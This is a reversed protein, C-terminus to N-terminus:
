QIEMAANTLKQQLKLFKAAQTATLNDGANNLSTQLKEAKELMSAYETIASVDGANAKKMLAIYKNIYDEYDKLVKDWDKSKSNSTTSTEGDESEDSSFSTANGEVASTIRFSVPKEEINISWRVIGTENAGLQIASEIDDSSYVGSLGGANANKIEVVDGNGDLMEIGFGVQIPKEDTSVSFSTAKSADFPLEKDTRRLEVSILHGWSGNEKVIYDKQVVEFYGKLPGKIETKEPKVKVVEDKKNGGGCATFFVIAM